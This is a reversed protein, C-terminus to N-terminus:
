ENVPMPTFTGSPYKFYEDRFIDSIEVTAQVRRDNRTVDFAAELLELCANGLEQKVADRGELLRVELHVFAHDAAGDAIRFQDVVQVRSKCNDLNVGAITNIAAHIRDLLSGLHPTPDLNNTYELRIQPM